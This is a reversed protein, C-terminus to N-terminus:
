NRSRKGRAKDRYLARDALDFLQRASCGPSWCAMGISLSLGPGIRHDRTISKLRNIVADQDRSEFETLVVAFEDGGVRFLDEHERLSNKLAKALKRLVRDGASHGLTDNIQKFGDLDILLLALPSGHRESRAMERKLVRDFALRNGVGTLSDTQAELLAQQHCIANCLPWSIVAALQRAAHAEQLGPPLPFYINLDGIEMEGAQLRTRVPVARTVGARLSNGESFAEGPCQELALGIVGLEAGLHQLLIHLQGTPDLTRQLDCLLVHSRQVTQVDRSM